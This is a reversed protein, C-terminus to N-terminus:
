FNIQESQDTKVIGALKSISASGIKLKKLSNFYLGYFEIM